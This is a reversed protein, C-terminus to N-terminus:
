TALGPRDEAKGRGCSRGALDSIEIKCLTQSVIEETAKTGIRGRVPVEVVGRYGVSWAVGGRRSNDARSEKIYGIEM